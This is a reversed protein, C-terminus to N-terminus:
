RQSISKVSFRIRWAAISARPLAVTVYWPRSSSRDLGNWRRVIQPRDLLVRRFVGVRLQGIGVEQAGLQVLELDVGARRLEQVGAQARQLQHQELFGGFRLQPLRGEDDVVRDFSARPESVCGPMVSRKSSNM